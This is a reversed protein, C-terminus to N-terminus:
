FFYKSIEFDDDKNIILCPISDPDYDLVAKFEGCNISDIYTAEDFIMVNQDFIKFSIQDNDLESKVVYPINENILTSVDIIKENSNEVLEQLKFKDILEVSFNLQNQYVVYSLLLKSHLNDRYNSIEVTEEPVLKTILKGEEIFQKEHAPITINHSTLYPEDNGFFTIQAELEFDSIYEQDFITKVPQGRFIRKGSDTLTPMEFIEQGVRVTEFIEHENLFSNAGVNLLLKESESAFFEGVGNWVSQVSYKGQLNFDFFVKYKGFEDTLVSRVVTELESEHKILVNVNQKGLSPTVSGFVEFKGGIKGDVIVPKVELSVYSRKLPFNLSSSIPEFLQNEVDDVPIIKPKSDLYNKPQSGVKWGNGTAECVFYNKGYWIYFFPETGNTVDLKKDPLNVGLNMHNVSSINEYFFLVVDLGGAKMISAALFSLSDCDGYTDSLTEIPFKLGSKKYEIKHVFDLVLNVFIEDGNTPDTITSRIEDAVDSFLEPTVFKSYSRNDWTRHDLDKYYDNLSSPILVYLSKEGFVNGFQTQVSFDEDSFILSSNDAFFVISSILIVLIFFIKFFRTGM